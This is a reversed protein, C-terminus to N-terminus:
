NPFACIEKSTINTGVTQYPDIRNLYYLKIDFLCMITQHSFGRFQKFFVFILKRTLCCTTQNYKLNQKELNFRTIKNFFFFYQEFM